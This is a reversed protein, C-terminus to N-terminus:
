WALLALVMVVAFVSFLYKLWKNGIAIAYHTGVYGGVLSGFFMAIGMPIDIVGQVIFVALAVVTVVLGPIRKTAMSQLNTLGFFYTLSVGTLMGFGSGFAARLGESLFYAIYGFFRRLKSTTFAVVGMDKKSWIAVVSVLLLVVVVNEVIYEPTSLLAQAGVLGAIAALLLLVPLLPWQILNKGHFKFLSGISIGVAGFKPLAVATYTPIGLLLFLPVAVLGAAGGIISTFFSSVLGTGFAALLLM